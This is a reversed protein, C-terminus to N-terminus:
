KNHLESSEFGLGIGIALAYKYVEMIELSNQELQLNLWLDFQKAQPPSLSSVLEDYQKLIPKNLNHWQRSHEFKSGMINGYYLEEITKM